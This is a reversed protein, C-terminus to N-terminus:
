SKKISPARGRVASWVALLIVEFVDPDRMYYIHYKAQPMLVRRVHSIKRHKYPRGIDPNTEILDLFRDFEDIFLEPRATNEKWWSDASRIHADAEPRHVIRVKM